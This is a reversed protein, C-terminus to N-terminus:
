KDYIYEGLSVIPGIWNVVYNGAVGIMASGTQQKPFETDLPYTIAQSSYPATPDTISVTQLNGSPIATGTPPIIQVGVNYNYAQQQTFGAELSLAIAIDRYLQRNNCILDGIGVPVCNIDFTDRLEPDCGPWIQNIGFEVLTPGANYQPVRDGAPLVNFNYQANYGIPNEPISNDYDLINYIYTGGNATLTTLLSVNQPNLGGITIYLDLDIFTKNIHTITRGSKMLPLNDNVNPIIISNNRTPIYIKLKKIEKQQASDYKSQESDKEQYTFYNGM